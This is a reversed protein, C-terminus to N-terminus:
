VSQRVADSDERFTERLIGRRHTVTAAAATTAKLSTVNRRAGTTPTSKHRTKTTTWEVRPRGHKSGITLNNTARHSKSTTAQGNKTRTARHSTPNTKAANSMCMLYISLTCLYSTDNIPPVEEEEEKKPL